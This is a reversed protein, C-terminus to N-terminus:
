GLEIREIKIRDLDAVGLGKQAALEIHDWARGSEKIPVLGEQKRKADIAARGVADLAVPDTGLWLTDATYIVKPNRPAPGQDYCAELGDVLHLVVKKRVDPRACFDAIFPGIHKPGHFRRNNDCLGYALNKLTLTVGSLGHDKLIAMNIIKDCDRTFLSSIRSATSGDQRQEPNDFDSVYAVDPDYRRVNEEVGDTGYIRVGRDSTNFEFKCDRMQTEFRDWVIIANEKVGLETLEAVMAAILEQHTYLLPRGLTNIKLGVRDSPSFFKAWPSPSGTLAEMGRRLMKRTISPDVKRDALVAGPHSIEVVRGAGADAAPRGFVPRANAAFGAGIVVSSGKIMFERRNMRNKM